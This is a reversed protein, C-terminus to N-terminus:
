INPHRAVARAPGAPTLACAFAVCVSGRFGVTGPWFVGSSLGGVLGVVLWALWGGLLM